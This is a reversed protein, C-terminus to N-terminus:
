RHHEKRLPMQVQRDPDSLRMGADYLRRNTRLFSLADSPNMGGPTICIYACLTEHLQHRVADKKTDYLTADSGGDSLRVAVWKGFAATGNVTLQFNVADSCRRAADLEASLESM